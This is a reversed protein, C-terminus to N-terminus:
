DHDNGGQTEDDDTLVGDQEGEDNVVNDELVPNEPTTDVSDSGDNESDEPNDKDDDENDYVGEDGGNQQLIIATPDYDTSVVDRVQLDEQVM